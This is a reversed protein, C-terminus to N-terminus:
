SRLRRGTIRTAISMMWNVASHTSTKPTMWIGIPSSSGVNEARSLKAFNARYSKVRSGDAGFDPSKDRIRILVMGKLQTQISVLLRTDSWTYM